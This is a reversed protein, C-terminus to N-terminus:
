EKKKKGLSVRYDDITGQIKLNLFKTKRNTDVEVIEDEQGPDVVSDKKSGFLKQWAAKRVTKWPIRLYYDINQDSDHTGSLEMHGITSEITMAPISIKGKDIALSNQLTDFRINRLNKDGMYDSLALMPDYNKLRGNLVKVDMELTSQDLDPVLDPYVRIKGGIRSTLKGQLNESVLHDQGFNEFKFLLKELDVNNMVLDPQMYIHKPDSGNFYGSLRINGGAADMNLTDVYIYHDPTTRLEAKINQLDIRHYIFHGIDAKFRMNSFPLEYINFANSHESVDET